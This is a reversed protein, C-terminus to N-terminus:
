PTGGVGDSRHLSVGGVNMILYQPSRNDGYALGVARRALLLGPGFTHPPSSGPTSPRTPGHVSSSYRACGGDRGRWCYARMANAPAGIGIRSSSTSRCTASRMSRCDTRVPSSGGISRTTMSSPPCTRHWRFRCRDTVVGAPRCVAGYDVARRRVWGPRGRLRLLQTCSGYVEDGCAFDFVLGDAFADVCIDIALWRRRCSM